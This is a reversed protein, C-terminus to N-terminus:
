TKEALDLQKLQNLFTEKDELTRVDFLLAGDHIRGIVPQPLRRFASTIRRLTEDRSAKISVAKSPLRELPLSGSGIQSEVDIVSIEAIGGFVRNLPAVLTLALQELDEVQRTLLRLTPLREHLKEPNKYLRLVEYLAAITMKDVRLARKIPNSKIEKILSKKGVIIGAQPGGLLKDCSFTVIDAGSAVAEGVLPEKPLGYDSMRVLNGSGLDVVLPLDNKKALRALEPTAVESVYGRIEYNSTYVKMLLATQQNVANEYDSAHTRNTAGVERLLCGARMMIEPIRFSGGIEVLEGRSIPVERGLSLSNLTLLLAAANNNVVTAAEAGTLECILTEIHDDRDGRSGTNLDYELNTASGAVKIITDIASQPLLARGLNTHLVIGSLNFVCRLSFDKETKLQQELDIVFKTFCFSPTDREGYNKRWNELTERITKIVQNRGYQESFKHITNDKLIQDISPPRSSKELPKM